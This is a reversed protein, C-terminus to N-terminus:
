EVPDTMAVIHRGHRPGRAEDRRSLIGDGATRTALVRFVTGIPGPAVTLERETRHADKIDQRAHQTPMVPM